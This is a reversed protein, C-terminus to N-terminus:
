FSFKTTATLRLGSINLEDPAYHSNIIQLSEGYLDDLIAPYSMINTRTQFDSDSFKHAPVLHYEFNFSLSMVSSGKLEIGGFLMGGIPNVVEHLTYDAFQDPLTVYISYADQQVFYRHNIDVTSIYVGLGAGGTLTLGPVQKVPNWKYFGNIIIPNIKYSSQTQFKEYVDVVLNTQLEAVPVTVGLTTATYNSGASLNSFYFRVGTGIQPNFYYNIGGGFNKVSGFSQDGGTVSASWLLGTTDLLTRNAIMFASGDSIAKDAADMSPMYIGGDLFMEVRKFSDRVIRKRKIQGVAPLIAGMLFIVALSVTLSRKFTYM